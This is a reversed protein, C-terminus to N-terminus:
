AGRSTSIGNRHHLLSMWQGTTSIIFSVQKGARHSNTKRICFYLAFLSDGPGALLDLKHTAGLERYVPSTEPARGLVCMRLDTGGLDERTTM